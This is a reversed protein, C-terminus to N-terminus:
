FTLQAALFAGNAKYDFANDNSDRLERRLSATLRLSRWPDWVATLAASRLADLRHYNILPNIDGVYDRRSREFSLFLGLKETPRWTPAISVADTVTFNTVFDQYASLERRVTVNLATKGSIAWDWSLRGNAGRYDRGPSLPHDREARGFNGRFTSKGSVQWLGRLEAVRLRYRAAANAPYDGDTERLVFGIENGGGTRYLVGAEAIDATNDLPRRPASSNASEIRSARATLYWNAHLWWRASVGTDVQSRINQMPLRFDGFDTLQQTRERYLDGQLRNGLQWKFRATYDRRDHDLYDYRDYRISRLRGELLLNQRGIPKDFRLTLGTSRLTDGRARSGAFALLNFNEPLRFVNDDRYIDAAVIATFVDGDGAFASKAAPLAAACLLLSICGAPAAARCRRAIPRSM